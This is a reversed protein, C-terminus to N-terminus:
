GYQKDVCQTDRMSKKLTPTISMIVFMETIFFLLLCVVKIQKIETSNEEYDM